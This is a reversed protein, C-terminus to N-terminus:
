NRRRTKPKTGDDVFELFPNEKKAPADIRVRSRSSPTFGMESAARLIVVAQKTLVSLYPNEMPSGTDANRVLIGHKQIEENAQRHLDEAVVFTTLTARDIRRLLNAPAHAIAYDWAERQRDNLHAPPETLDGVAEPEGEPLKKKGPNGNLIKLATPM